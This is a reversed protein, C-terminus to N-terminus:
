RMAAMGPSLTVKLPLMISSAMGDDRFGKHSIGPAGTKADTLWLRQFISTQSIREIRYLLLM